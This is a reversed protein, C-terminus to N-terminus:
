SMKLDDRALPRAVGEQFVPVGEADDPDDGGEVEGHGHVPPVGGDGHCTAVCHEPFTNYMVNDTRSAKIGGGVHDPAGVVGSVETAIVFTTASTKALFPRGPAM